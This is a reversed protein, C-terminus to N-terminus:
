IIVIIVIIKIINFLMLKTLIMIKPGLLWFKFKFDFVACKSLYIDYYYVKKKKFLYDGYHSKLGFVYLTLFKHFWLIFFFLM